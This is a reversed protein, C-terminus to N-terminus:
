KIDDALNSLLNKAQKHIDKSFVMKWQLIYKSLTEKVGKTKLSLAGIQHTSQIEEIQDNKNDFDKLKDEFDELDPETERFRMLDNEPKKTWLWSYTTFGELFTKV